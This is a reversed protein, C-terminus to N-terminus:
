KSVALPHVSLSPSSLLVSSSTSIDCLLAASFSIILSLIAKVVFANGVPIDILALIRKTKRDGLTVQSLILLAFLGIMAAVSAPFSVSSMSILSHIGFLVALVCMVGFPVYFWAM